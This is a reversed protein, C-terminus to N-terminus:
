AHRNKDVIKISNYIYDRFIIIRQFDVKAYSNEVTERSPLDVPQMIQLIDTGNKISSETIKGKLFLWTVDNKLPEM